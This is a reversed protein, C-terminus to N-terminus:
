VKTSRCTNNDATHAKKTHCMGEKTYKRNDEEVEEVVVIIIVLVEEEKKMSSLSCM